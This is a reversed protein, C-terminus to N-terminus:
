ARVGPVAMIEHIVDSTHLAVRREAAPLTAPDVFGRSLAPGEFAQDIDIGAVLAQDLSLFGVAPSILAAIRLLIGLLVSAGDENAGIEVSAYVAVPMPELVIIDDFDECLPRNAHLRLAVARRLTSSDIDELDSKEVLVRWLGTPNVAESDISPLQVD